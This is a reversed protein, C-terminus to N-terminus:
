DGFRRLARRRALLRAMRRGLKPSGSLEDGPMAAVVGERVLVWGARMLRFAATVSSM